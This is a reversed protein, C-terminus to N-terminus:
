HAGAPAATAPAAREVAQVLAGPKIKQLGEVIVREGAKLGDTVLWQDGVTRETTLARLEVHQDAGVVLATAKGAADHTVGQQPVLLAQAQVGEEISGHVFLGPLLRHKPNPFVARLTVSGSSADVTVESFQLTGPLEYPTGDDLTLGVQAQTEGLRKLRGSDFERQLRLLTTAPQSMDVYIPDLQQITALPLSQQATVLAGETVSSRGIRGAIPALVKTYVLNIHATQVQAQASAVDAEAELRAAVANDYEQTSVAKAAVLAEYREALLTASKATAQARLLAAQASAYQAQYPAADIQYLPQNQRVESGETFLRKTVVGGVQPRVEALRYASTRGPLETSLTLPQTQLTVVTVAAPAQPAPAPKGGCAVLASLLVPLALRRLSIGILRHKEQTIMAKWFLPVSAPHRCFALRTIQLTAAPFLTPESADSKLILM